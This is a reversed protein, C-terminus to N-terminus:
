GAAPSLRSAAYVKIVELLYPALGSRSKDYFATFRPDEVYMRGLGVYSDADPTWSVCIWRYHREVAAQVRADDAPLGADLCHALEQNIAEAEALFDRKEADGMAAHRAKSDEVAKGGWRQRAEDEYPNSDFDKFIDEGSMADGQQLASITAEVTRAMRDLRDREALLWKRHVGLADLQNTQGDLVEGITELGLGLERLLLIRQLRLLETRTYYRYGNHGTYAPVLLELRHYHRLTRSSVRSLKALEAISWSPVEEQKM